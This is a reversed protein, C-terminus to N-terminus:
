KKKLGKAESRFRIIDKGFFVGVQRLFQEEEEEVAQMQVEEEEEQRKVTANTVETVAAAIRDAEQEYVDGPANVTLKAQVIESNLLRQVYRNGYTQQLHIVLNARQTDPGTNALMRAHRDVLTGGIIDAVGKDAAKLQDYFPEAKERHHSEKKLEKIKEHKMPEHEAM